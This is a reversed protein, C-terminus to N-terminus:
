TFIVGHVSRADGSDGDDDDQDQASLRKDDDLDKGEDQAAGDPMLVTASGDTDESIQLDLKDNPNM